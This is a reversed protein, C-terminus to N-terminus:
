RVFSDPDKQHSRTLDNWEPGEQVHPVRMSGKRVPTYVGFVEPDSYSFTMDDSFVALVEPSFDVKDAEPAAIEGGHRLFSM